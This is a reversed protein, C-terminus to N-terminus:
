EVDYSSDWLRRETGSKDPEWQLNAKKRFFTANVKPKIEGVRKYM